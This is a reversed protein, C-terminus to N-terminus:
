CVEKNRDAFRHFIVFPSLGNVCSELLFEEEACIDVVIAWGYDFLQCDVFNKESLSVETAQECLEFSNHRATYLVTRMCGLYHVTKLIENGSSCGTLELCQCTPLSIKNVTMWAVSM